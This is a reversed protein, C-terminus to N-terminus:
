LEWCYFFYYSIHIEFFMVKCLIFYFKFKNEITKNGSSFGSVRIWAVNQIPFVYNGLNEWYGFLSYLAIVFSVLFPISVCVEVAEFGSGDITEPPPELVEPAAYVRTSSQSPKVTKLKTSCNAFHLSFPSLKPKSSSSSSSSSFPSSNSLSLSHILTASVSSVAMLFKQLKRKERKRKLETSELRHNPM